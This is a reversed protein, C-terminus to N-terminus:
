QRRDGREHVYPISSLSPQSPSGFLFRVPGYGQTLRESHPNLSFTAPPVDFTVPAKSFFKSILQPSEIVRSRSQVSNSLQPPPASAPSELLPRWLARGRFPVSADLIR